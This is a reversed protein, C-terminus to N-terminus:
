LFIYSVWGLLNLVIFSTYVFNRNITFKGSIFIAVYFGAFHMIIDSIRNTFYEEVHIYIEFLEWVVSVFLIIFINRIKKNKNLFFFLIVGFLFHPASWLDVYPMESFLIELM